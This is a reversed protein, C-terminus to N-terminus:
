HAEAWTKAANAEVVLPVSFDRAPLPAKMMTESVVKMTKEAQKEPVEFILEDHVQLLMRAKLKAKKLAGPMAIMARKIVDAASGQIPANIAQREAFSRAPGKSNIDKLYLKRGFATEVFGTERAQAKTDDMYKKIGPFKKFYAKIYDNQRAGSSESSARLVLDPFAM